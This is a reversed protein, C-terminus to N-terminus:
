FHVTYELDFLNAVGDFEGHSSSTFLQGGVRLDTNATLNYTATPLILVGPGALDVVAYTQVKFLPTVSYRAGASFFHRQLTYIENNYRFLISPDFPEGPIYGPPQGQNYFYEALVYWKDGIAYDSGFALRLANSQSAESRATYTFEGHLGAGRWQGAFDAGALWNKGFRGGLAAIDFNHVTAAIRTAETSRDIGDQPAFVLSWRIDRPLRLKLQAADVGTREDEEVQTPSIPNFVDAPSWFRATGWAIRQRGAVLEARGHRVTLTGRYLSTDWYAHEDDVWVHLLDLYSADQRQRVLDFDPETILNGVHLENDYEVHLLFSSHWAADVNLRLRNLDDGYADGNFYSHSAMLLNRYYGGFRYKLAKRDTQALGEVSMCVLVLILAIWRKM